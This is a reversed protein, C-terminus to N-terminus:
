NWRKAEPSPMEFTVAPRLPLPLTAPPPLALFSPPPVIVAPAGRARNPKKKSTKPKKVPPTRSSREFLPIGLDFEPDYHLATGDAKSNHITVEWRDASDIYKRQTTRPPSM